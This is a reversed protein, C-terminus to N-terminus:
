QVLSQAPNPFIHEDEFSTAKVDVSGLQAHFSCGSCIVIVALIVAFLIIRSMSLVEM